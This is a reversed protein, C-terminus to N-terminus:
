GSQRGNYKRMTDMEYALELIRKQEDGFQFKKLAARRREMLWKVHQLTRPDETELKKRWEALMAAVQAQVTKDRLDRNVESQLFNLAKAKQTEKRGEEGAKQYKLMLDRELMLLMSKTEQPGIHLRRLATRRRSVNWVVRRSEEHDDKRLKERWEAVQAQLKARTTEDHVDMDDNLLQLEKKQKAVDLPSDGKHTKTFQQEYGVTLVEIERDTFGADHWLPLREKIDEHLLSSMYPNKGKWIDVEGKVEERNKPDQLEKFETELKPRNTRKAYSVARRRQNETSNEGTSTVLSGPEADKRQTEPPTPQEGLM